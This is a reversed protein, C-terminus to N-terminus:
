FHYNFQLSLLDASSEFDGRVRQTTAPNLTTPRDIHSSGTMVHAYGVDISSVDSCRYGAGVSLWIRDADPFRVTRTQDDKVISADYAVGGRLEVAPSFAYMAGASLRWGDQFNLQEEYATVKTSRNKATMTSIVSWDYWSVDGLLKWTPNLQYTGSVSMSQPTSTDVDTQTISTVNGTPTPTITTLDGKLNLDIQSHYTLGIHTQASPTWLLGVHGGWGDGDGALSEKTDGLYSGNSWIIPLNRTLKADFNLYDVGVGISWAPNLRLSYAQSVHIGTIETKKGQYRGVFQDGWEGDTGYMPSISGGIAWQQDVYVAQGSPITFAPSLTSHSEGVPILPHAATSQQNNFTTSVDVRALTGSLHVGEQKSSLHVLGAPNFAATSANDTLAAQGAFAYGVGAGNQTDVFVGSAQVASISFLCYSLGMCRYLMNLPRM